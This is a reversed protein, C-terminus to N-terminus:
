PREPAQEGSEAGLVLGREFKLSVRAGPGMDKGTSATGLKVEVFRGHAEPPRDLRVIVRAGAGTTGVAEVIGGLDRDSPDQTLRLDSPLVARWHDGEPWTNYGLFWAVFRTAPHHYVEAPVGEQVWGGDNLIGVKDGLFFAEEFDHTVHIVTTGTQTLWRKLEGQLERRLRYDVSALPEDLLLLGPRPALARALAVRQKEGGSLEQPLRSALDRLRFQDLLENVRADIERPPEGRVELGYALNEDVTRNPFLALDQFVLGVGRRHAPLGTVDRGGLLIRGGRSPELGALVRLLTTKGAGNPGLISLIGGRPIEFSVPGLTFGGSTATLGEVRLFWSRDSGSM